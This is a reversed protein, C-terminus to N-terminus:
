CLVWPTSTELRSATATSSPSTSASRCRTLATVPAVFCCCTLWTCVWTFTCLVMYQDLMTEIDGPSYFNRLVMAAHTAIFVTYGPLMIARAGFVIPTQYAASACHIAGSVAQVLSLTKLIPAVAAPYFLVGVVAWASVIIATTGSWVHARICWLRAPLMVFKPHPPTM